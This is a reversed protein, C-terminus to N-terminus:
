RTTRRLRRFWWCSPAITALRTYPSATEGPGHPGSGARRGGPAPARRHLVSSRGDWQAGRKAAPTRLLRPTLHADQPSEPLSGEGASLIRSVHRPLDKGLVDLAQDAGEIADHRRAHRGRRGAVDILDVHGGAGIGVHAGDAATDAGREHGRVTQRQVGPADLDRLGTGSRMFRRSKPHQPDLLGDRLGLRRRQHLQRPGPTTWLADDGSAGAAGKPRRVPQAGEGRRRQVPGLLRQGRLVALEDAVLRRQHRKVPPRRRKGADRHRGRVAVLPHAADASAITYAASSATAFSPTRASSAAAGSRRAASSAIRRCTTAESRAGDGAPDWARPAPGASPAPRDCAARGSPACELRPSTIPIVARRSAGSASRPGDSGPRREISSTNYWDRMALRVGTCM